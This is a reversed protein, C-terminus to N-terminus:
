LNKWRLCSFVGFIDGFYGLICIENRSHELRSNQKMLSAAQQLQM